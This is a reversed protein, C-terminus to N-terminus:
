EEEEELIVKGQHFDDVNFWDYKDFSDIEDQTFFAVGCEKSYSLFPVGDENLLLLGKGPDDLDFEKHKLIFLEDNKEKIEM